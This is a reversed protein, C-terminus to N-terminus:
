VRKSDVSIEEDPVREAYGSAIIEKMFGIYDKRFQDDSTLRQRLKTLRSFALEKNNPLELNKKRLPLPMEFHGDERQHIGERVIKLFKRDEFSLSKEETARESFDLAFMSSVQKASLVEKAQTKLAFHCMRRDLLTQVERSIIRNCYIDSKDEPDDHQGHPSVLGIIGWGLATRKAYPDNDKGPIVELPKIARPCNLGILLGVEVDPRFPMLHESIRKLHPWRHASEPKPIQSKRAPITSRSYTRPLSIDHEEKYGRVVLGEIKQCTVVEEALVTSLKLEVEPGKVDLTRLVDERIFCADSQEDLLAYVLTKTQPNKDHHLWVPVILSHACAPSVMKRDCVKVRNSTAEAEEERLTNSPKDQDPPKTFDSHLSTPHFGKCNKCVKRRRCNKKMHGWKLCGLCLAKSKALEIRDALSMKLFQECTDLDHPSRCLPCQLTVPRSERRTENLPKKLEGSGTAFTRAKHTNKRTSIHLRGKREFRERNGDEKESRGATVPNCAIRAEKALFQCFVKFPPHVSESRTRARVGRDEECDKNLWRDVERSWRDILYRPLKRVIKQNEDPDDLVKLYKIEKTATECHTLFDSFKRLSSGDFPAIKPWDNIRKRYADAILFPNGFRDALIKKAKQYADETELLLLGSIAERPEGTTYKGLYYLRQSTSDTQGEIITEFSKIWVPYHLLDGHFNEPKPLPLTDRLRRNMLIDALRHLSNELSSDNHPSERSQEDECIRGHALVDVSPESVANFTSQEHTVLPSADFKPVFPNLSSPPLTPRPTPPPPMPTNEDQNIKPPSISLESKVVPIQENNPSAEAQESLSDINTQLTPPFSRSAQSELYNQLLKDTITEQPLKENQDLPDIENEEIKNVANMEAEALALEKTLRFRRLEDEYEKLATTKRAEADAFKLETQLRAVNTAIATRKALSSACSENSKRSRSDRSSHKSSRSRGSGVEQNIESIRENLRKLTDSHESELSEFKMLTDKKADYNDVLSELLKENAANLIDMKTELFARESKLLDVNASDAILNRVKNLQKRWSRQASSRQDDLLQLHYAKGKETINRDRGTQTRSSSESDSM